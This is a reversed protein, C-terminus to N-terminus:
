EGGCAKFGAAVARCDMTYTTSYQRVGPCETNGTTVGRVAVVVERAQAPAGATCCATLELSRKIDDISYGEVGHSNSCVAPREREWRDQWHQSMCEQAHGRARRRCRNPVVNGCGGRSEFAGFSLRHGNPFANGNISLYQLEWHSRCHRVIDARAPETVPWGAAAIALTLLSAFGITRRMISGGRLIPAIM